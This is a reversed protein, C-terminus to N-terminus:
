GLCLTSDKVQRFRRGVVAKQATCRNVKYWKNDTLLLEYEVRKNTYQTTRIQCVYLAGYLNAYIFATIM